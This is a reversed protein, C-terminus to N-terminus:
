YEIDGSDDHVIKDAALMAEHNMQQTQKFAAMTGAFDCELCGHCGPNDPAVPVGLCIPCAEIAAIM